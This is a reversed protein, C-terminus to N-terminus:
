KEGKKKNNTYLKSLLRYQPSPYCKENILMRYHIIFNQIVSKHGSKFKMSICHKIQLIQINKKYEM